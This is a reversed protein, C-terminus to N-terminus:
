QRTTIIQRHLDLLAPVEDRSVRGMRM